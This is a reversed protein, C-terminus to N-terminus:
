KKKIKKLKAGVENSAGERLFAPSGNLKIKFVDGVRKLSKLLESELLQHARKEHFSYDKKAPENPHLTIINNELTDLGMWVVTSFVELM